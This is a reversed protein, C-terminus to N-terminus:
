EGEMLDRAQQLREACEAEDGERAAQRAARLVSIAHSERGAMARPKEGPPRAPDPEPTVAMEDGTEPPDLIVGQSGTAPPRVIGGSRALAESLEEGGGRQAEDLTPAPGSLDQEAEFRTIEYACDQGSAAFCPLCGALTVLTAAFRRM